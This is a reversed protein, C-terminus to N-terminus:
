AKLDICNKNLKRMEEILIEKFTKDEKAARDQTVKTLKDVIELINFITGGM